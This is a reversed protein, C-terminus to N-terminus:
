YTGHEVVGLASDIMNQVDEESLGDGSILGIDYGMLLCGDFGMKVLDETHTLNSEICAIQPIGQANCQNIYGAITQDAIFEEWTHNSQNYYYSLIANKNQTVFNYAAAM